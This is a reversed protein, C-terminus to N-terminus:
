CDTAGAIGSCEYARSTDGTSWSGSVMGGMSIEIDYGDDDDDDDDADLDYVVDHNVTVGDTIALARKEVQEAKNLQFIYFATLFVFLESMIIRRRGAAPVNMFNTVVIYMALYRTLHM